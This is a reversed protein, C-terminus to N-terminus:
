ARATTCRDVLYVISQYPIGGHVSLGIECTRSNSYGAKCDPPLSARLGSLASANLEPVDFGKDGAFGCCGLGPVVVKAACAEAVAKFKETLGMKISSCTVHVAITDPTREFRLKDMLHAHIFEVPEHLKLRPDVNGKMRYVCPSTDCLIPIRGDESRDLLARSLEKAKEDGLDPFGKSEFTLGCCLSGMERPFLVDYGAKDLVSLMAASVARQDEDGRAPGWM